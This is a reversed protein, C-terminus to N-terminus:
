PKPFTLTAFVPRHDSAAAAAPGDYVHAIGGAVAARLCPSVLINDLQSYDDGRRWAETWTEGRSDAAELRIAVAARGSRELAQLVRSNRGDNCDGLIV